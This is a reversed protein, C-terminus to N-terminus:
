VYKLQLFIVFYIFFVLLLRLFYVFSINSSSNILENNVLKRKRSFFVFLAICAFGLSIMMELIYGPNIVTKPFFSDFMTVPANIYSKDVYISSNLIGYNFNIPSFVKYKIRILSLVISIEGVISFFQLVVNSKNNLMILLVIFPAIYVWWYPFPNCLLLFVAFVSVATVVSSYLVDAFVHAYCYALLIIYGICFLSIHGNSATLANNFVLHLLSSTNYPQNASIPVLLRLALVPLLAFSVKLIIRLLNKEKQLLLPLFLLLAFAKVPIAIAFALIFKKESGKLYYYLGAMMFSVTIIDYQGVICFFATLFIDTSFLFVLDYKSYKGDINLIKWMYYLCVFAFFLIISKAWMMSPLYDFPNNGIIGCKQSLWLPFNWIAFIIYMAFDYYAPCVRQRAVDYFSRIKGDFICDWLVIGHRTTLVIDNYIFCYFLCIQLLVIEIITIKKISDKLRSSPMLSHKFNSM